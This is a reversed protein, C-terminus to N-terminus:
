TKSLGDRPVPPDGDLYLSRVMANDGATLHLRHFLTVYTAAYASTAVFVPACFASGCHTLAHGVGSHDDQMPMGDHGMSSHSQHEQAHGDGAFSYPGLLVAFVLIASLLSRLSIASVQDHWNTFKVRDVKHLIGLIWYKL